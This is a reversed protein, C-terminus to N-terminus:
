HSSLHNKVVEGFPQRKEPTDIGALRVRHQVPRYDPNNPHRRRHHRGRAGHGLRSAGTRWHPGPVPLSTGGTKAHTGGLCHLTPRVAAGPRHPPPRRGAARCPAAGNVLRRLGDTARWAEAHLDPHSSATTPYRRDRILSSRPGRAKFRRVPIHRSHSSPTVACGISSGRWSQCYMM